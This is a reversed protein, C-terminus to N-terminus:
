ILEMLKVMGIGVAGGVITAVCDMTSVDHNGGAFKNSLYDFVEKGLAAAVIVCSALVVHQGFVAGILLGVALHTRKDEPIKHALEVAKDVGKNVLEIVNKM